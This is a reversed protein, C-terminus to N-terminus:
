EPIFKRIIWGASEQRNVMSYYSIDFIEEGRSLNLGPNVMVFTNQECHCIFINNVGGKSFPSSPPIKLFLIKAYKYFRGEGRKALSPYKRTLSM